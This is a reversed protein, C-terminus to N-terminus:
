IDLNLYNLQNKRLDMLKQVGKEGQEMSWDESRQIIADSHQKDYETRANERRKKTDGIFDIVGTTLGVAGGIAAGLPGGVSAGLAVGNATSTGLGTWSEKESQAENAFMNMQGSAFSAIGGINDKVGTGEGFVKNLANGKESTDATQISRMPNEGRAKELLETGIPAISLSSSPANFAVPEDYSVTDDTYNEYDLKLNMNQIKNAFDYPSKM